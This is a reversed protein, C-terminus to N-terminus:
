GFISHFLNKAGKYVSKAGGVVAKVTGGIDVEFGVDAGVGFAAGVDVKLKGDTYGVEAHVGVGVKLSGTVGIDTGLVSVGATASVKVLDAEASAGAYVEKGPIVSVKGKAEATLVKADADGYVGLMNHDDGLGIRGEASAALVSVSAGIEASCSPSFVRKTKGNEDKEFVYLGASANAHAEVDGVKVDYSGETYDGEGEGKFERWTKEKKHEAKVELITGNKDYFDEDEGVKKYSKKKQEPFLKKEKNKERNKNVRDSIADDDEYSVFEPSVSMTSVTVAQIFGLITTDKGDSEVKLDGNFFDKWLVAMFSESSGTEPKSVSDKSKQKVGSWGAPPKFNAPDLKSLEKETSEFSTKTETLYAKIKLINKTSPKYKYKINYFGALGYRLYLNDITGNFSDIRKKVAELRSAYSQLRNTDVSIESM